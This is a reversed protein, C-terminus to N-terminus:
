CNRLDMKDVRLLPKPAQQVGVVLKDSRKHSELLEIAGNIGVTVRIIFKGFLGM